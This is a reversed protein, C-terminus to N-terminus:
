DILEFRYVQEIEPYKSKDVLSAFMEYDRVWILIDWYEAQYVVVTKPEDSENTESDFAIHLVKYTNGKFHKYRYGIKIENM